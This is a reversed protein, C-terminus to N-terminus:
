LGKADNELEVRTGDYVQKTDMRTLRDADLQTSIIEFVKLLDKESPEIKTFLINKAEDYDNNKRKIYPMIEMFLAITRGRLYATTEINNFKKIWYEEWATVLNDMRQIILFKFFDVPATASVTFNPNKTDM